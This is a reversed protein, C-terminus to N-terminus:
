EDEHENELWELLSGWDGIYFSGNHYLITQTYTDGSNCYYIETGELAPNEQDFLSEVGHTGLITNVESLVEQAKTASTNWHTLRRENEDFWQLLRLEKEETYNNGFLSMANEQLAERSLDILPFEFM